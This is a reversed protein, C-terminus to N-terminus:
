VIEGCVFTILSIDELVQELSAPDDVDISIAGYMSLQFLLFQSLATKGSGRRSVILFVKPDLSLQNCRTHYFFYRSYNQKLLKVESECDAEGFPNFREATHRNMVGTM